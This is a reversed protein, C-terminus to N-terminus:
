LNQETLGKKMGVVIGVVFYSFLTFRVWPIGLGRKKRLKTESFDENEWVFGCLVENIM